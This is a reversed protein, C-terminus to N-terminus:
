PDPPGLVRADWFSFGYPTGRTLCLVRVYRAGVSPFTTRVPEPGSLTVTAVDRFVSGDTSTQIKYADAYAQEWDLEVADVKRTTGLDVQWWQDDAYRSSWRTSRDGDNARGAEFGAGHTSSTTAPRGRAKDDSTVDASPTAPPRLLVAGSRAGLAVSTVTAGALNTYPKGLSLTKTTQGPQNVLVTGREFDRRLVGNWSHRANLPEGLEADYGSWWSDPHSGESHTVGDRTTAVLFYTALQYERGWSASSDWIVGKGRAHAHDAWALVTEYGWKGTGGVVGGDIVGREINLHTAADIARRVYENSLGAHFYVQNHVVEFASPVAARVQEMFEAMYRQWSELTMQQGTRPDIPAVFSGNGDSVKFALNVDDIFVGKYGRAVRERIVDIQRKRWGPDGIDAAYQTCSGNSCRFPIYLRNGGADKLIYQELGAERGRYIAYANQYSWADGYWSLRTDFYPAYTRMRWYRERMSTSQSLTPAATYADFDASAPKVFRVSGVSAGAPAQAIALVVLQAALVIGVAIRRLGPM